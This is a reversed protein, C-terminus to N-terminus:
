GTRGTGAWDLFAQVESIFRDEAEIMPLHGCNELIVTRAHPLLAKFAAAYAVPVLGDKAGHVILTEARIYPLRRALGRDPIPWMFKTAAGLNQQRFGEFTPADGDLFGSPERKSWSEPDAWKARQLEAPPIAFPDPMPAEDLWLGYPNVLVLKRVLRPCLAAFEAAFMGGLSHGVLDVPGSAEVAQEILSRYHLVLDVIDVLAEFGGTRGFGPHEPAYVTRTEGLRTLFSAAGPHQEFGHLYVLSTGQGGTWMRVAHAGVTEHVVQM